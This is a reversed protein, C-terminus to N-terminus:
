KGVGTIRDQIAQHLTKITNIKLKKLDIFTEDDFEVCLARELWELRMEKNTLELSTGSKYRDKM